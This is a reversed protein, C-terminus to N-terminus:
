ISGGSDPLPWPKLQYNHEQATIRYRAGPTGTSAQEIEPLCVLIMRMQEFGEKHNLQPALFVSTIKKEPCLLHIKPDGSKSKKGTDKSIFLPVPDLTLLWDAVERDNKGQRFHDLLHTARIPIKRQGLLESLKRFWKPAMCEDFCLNM